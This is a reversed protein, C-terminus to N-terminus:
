ASTEPAPPEAARDLEAESAAEASQFDAEEQEAFRAEDALWDQDDLDRNIV